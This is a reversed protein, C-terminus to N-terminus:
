LEMMGVHDRSATIEKPCKSEKDLHPKKPRTPVPTKSGKIIKSLLKTSLVKNRKKDQEYITKRELIYIDGNKQTSHVIRTKIEGSAKAPM